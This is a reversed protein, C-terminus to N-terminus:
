EGGAYLKEGCEKHMYTTEYYKDCDRYFEEQYFVPKDCYKCSAVEDYTKFVNEGEILDVSDTHWGPNEQRIKRIAGAPSAAEITIEKSEPKYITANYKM